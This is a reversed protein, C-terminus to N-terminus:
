GGIKTYVAYLNRVSEASLMDGFNFTGHTAILPVPVGYDTQIRRQRAPPSNLFGMGNRFRTRRGTAVRRKPPRPKVVLQGSSTIALYEFDADSFEM